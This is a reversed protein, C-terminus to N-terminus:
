SVGCMEYVTATHPNSFQEDGLHDQQDRRNEYKPTEPDDQVANREHMLRPDEPDGKDERKHDRDTGHAVQNSMAAFLASSYVPCIFVRM